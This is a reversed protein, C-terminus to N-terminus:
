PIVAIKSMVNEWSGGIGGVGVKGSDKGPWIKGWVDGNVSTVINKWPDIVCPASCSVTPEATAPAALGVALVVGTLATTIIKKM